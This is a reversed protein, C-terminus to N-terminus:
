SDQSGHKLSVNCAENAACAILVTANRNKSAAGPTQTQPYADHVSAEIHMTWGSLPSALNSCSAINSPMTRVIGFKGTVQAPPPPNLDAIKQM